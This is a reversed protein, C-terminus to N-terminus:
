RWHVPEDFHRRSMIVEHGQEVTRRFGLLHFIEVTRWRAVRRDVVVASPMYPHPRVGPLLPALRDARLRRLLASLRLWIPRIGRVIFFGDDGQSQYLPMLIRGTEPALVPRGDSWRGLLEGARVSQFSRFGPEMYFIRERPVAHRYRVELFRPHGQGVKRLRNRAAPVPPHDVPVSGARALSVWVADELADVAAPDDHRGGECGMTICGRNNVYELFTAALQEELGLIVPLPISLAFSRNRLTDGLTIFPPSDGSTTHLDIVIPPETARELVPDLLRVLSRREEDEASRPSAGDALAEPWWGRNMDTDRYRVGDRLAGVNGALALVEGRILEPGPLATAVRRLAEVGAPENGHLGGVIVVTRGPRTGRVHAIVREVAAGDPRASM